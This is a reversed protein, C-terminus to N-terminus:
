IEGYSIKQFKASDVKGEWMIQNDLKIKLDFEFDQQSIESDNL